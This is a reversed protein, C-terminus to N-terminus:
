GSESHWQRGGSWRIRRLLPDGGVGGCGRRWRHSREGRRWGQLHRGRDDKRQAAQLRYIPNRFRTEVGRQLEGRLQLSGQCPRAAEGDRGQLRGRRYRDRARTGRRRHSRRSAMPTMCSSCWRARFSRPMASTRWCTKWCCCAATWPASRVAGGRHAARARGAAAPRHTRCGRGEDAGGTRCGAQLLLDPPGWSAAMVCPAASSAACCM